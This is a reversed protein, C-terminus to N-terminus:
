ISISANHVTNETYRSVPHLTFHFHLHFSIFIVEPTTISTSYLLCHKNIDAFEITTYARYWFVM